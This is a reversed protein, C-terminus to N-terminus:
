LKTKFYYVIIGVFVVFAILVYMISQATTSKKEADELKQEADELKQEADERKQDANEVYHWSSDSTDAKVIVTKEFYDGLQNYGITIKAVEIENETITKPYARFSLTLEQGVELNESMYTRVNTGEVKQLNVAAAPVSFEDFSKFSYDIVADAGSVIKIEMDTVLNSDPNITISSYIEEGQYSTESLADFSSTYDVNILGFASHSGVMVFVLLAICFKMYKSMSLINSRCINIDQQKNCIQNSRFYKSMM